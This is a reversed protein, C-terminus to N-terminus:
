LYLSVVKFAVLLNYKIELGQVVDASLLVRGDDEGQGDIEEGM